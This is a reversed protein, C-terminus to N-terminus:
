MSWEKISKENMRVYDDNGAEKALALSKKAAVMAEAKRNLDALILAERRLQWYRPSEVNTAKQVYMLAKNLDKGSEHLYTGANFYDNTSPGAMVREIDAMVRSDVEVGIKVPVYTNAWIFELTASTNTLEGLSITFTEVNVPLGESTVTAIAAPEKDVYSGWNGTEYTYFHVDWTASGPKTLIAYSGAKLSTGEVTVDDSFTIKSVANAGTRWVQGLPVIGDAAFIKRGKVSPRSYELTIETLGVTQILKSSPSAAPTRIQGEAVSMVGLLAILLFSFNKFM